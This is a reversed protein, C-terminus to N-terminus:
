DNLLHIPVWIVKSPSKKSVVKLNPFEQKGLRTVRVFDFPKLEFKKSEQREVLEIEGEVCIVFHEDASIPLQYEEFEKLSMPFMNGKAEGKLLFLNLDMCPVTIKAQTGIEGSFRYPCLLELNKVPLNPHSLEVGGGFLICIIRDYNQFRSFECDQEISASSLRWSFEVKSDRGLERTKGQGNKWPQFECNEFRSPRCVLQGLMNRKKDVGHGM